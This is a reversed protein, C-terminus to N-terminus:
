EYRRKAQAISNPEETIESRVVDRAEPSLRGLRAGVLEVLTAPLEGADAAVLEEVFLPNGESRGYIRDLEARGPAAGLAVLQERVARRDLRDLAMREVRPHRGVEALWGAIDPAVDESRVTLLLMIRETALNRVLFTVLDRTARDVWHLDEFVVLTPRSAGLRDLHGPGSAAEASATAAFACM